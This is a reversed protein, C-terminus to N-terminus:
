SSAVGRGRKASAVPWARLDQLSRKCDEEQRVHPASQECPPIERDVWRIKKQWWSQGLNCAVLISRLPAVARSCLIESVHPADPWGFAIGRRICVCTHAIPEHRRALIPYDNAVMRDILLGSPKTCLGFEIAHDIGPLHHFGINGGSRRRASGSRREVSTPLLVLREPRWGKGRYGL